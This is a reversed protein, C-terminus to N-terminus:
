VEPEVTSDSNPDPVRKIEKYIHKIRKLWLTTLFRTNQPRTEDLSDYYFVQELLLAYAALVRSSLTRNALQIAAHTKPGFLGDPTLDLARQLVKIANFVGANVAFAYHVLDVPWNLKDCHADEWIERYIAEREVSTIERVSRRHLGIVDRYNDYRAQTVGFNTAGGRDDPDNVYGGEERLVISYAREFTSM